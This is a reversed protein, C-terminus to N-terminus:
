SENNTLGLPLCILSLELPAFPAIADDTFKSIAARSNSAAPNVLITLSYLSTKSIKFIISAPSWLEPGRANATISPIIVSSSARCTSDRLSYEPCGFKLM